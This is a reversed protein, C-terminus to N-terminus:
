GRLNKNHINWEHLAIYIFLLYLHNCYTKMFHYAWRKMWWYLKIGRERKTVGARDTQAAHPRCSRSSRSPRWVPPARPLGRGGPGPMYQTSIHQIHHTTYPYEKIPTKYAHTTLSNMPRCCGRQNPSYSRRNPVITQWWRCPATYGLLPAMTIEVVM